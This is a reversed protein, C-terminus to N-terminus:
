WRLQGTAGAPLALNYQLSWYLLYTQIIGSGSAHSHLPAQLCCMHQAIFRMLLEHSKM